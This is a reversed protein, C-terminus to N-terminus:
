EEEEFIPADESTFNVSFSQDGSASITSFDLFSPQNKFRGSRKVERIMLSVGNVRVSKVYASYKNGGKVLRILNHALDDPLVGLYNGEEDTATVGRQKILLNVPMGCYIQSLKAPEAVKLLAVVKTKGPEQLFLFPSVISPIKTKKIGDPKKAAKIIKLNKQAIPNYPDFKLALNYYKKALPVKGLEFYARALRNLADVDQSTERLIQRNIRLAEEWHSNLAAKIAKQSRSLSSGASSEDM